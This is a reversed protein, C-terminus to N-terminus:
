PAALPDLPAALPDPATALHGRTAVAAALPSAELPGEPRALRARALLGFLVAFALCFLIATEPEHIGCYTLFPRYSAVGLGALWAWGRGALLGVALAAAAATAAHLVAQFALIAAFGFPLLAKVLGLYLPSYDLLREAQEAPSAAAAALYKPFVMDPHTVGALLLACALGAVFAAAAALAAPRVAAARAGGPGPSM